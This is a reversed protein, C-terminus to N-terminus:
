NRTPRTMGRKSDKLSMTYPRSRKSSTGSKKSNGIYTVEGKRNMKYTDGSKSTYTSTGDKNVKVTGKLKISKANKASGGKKGSTSSASKVTGAKVADAGNIVTSPTFLEM